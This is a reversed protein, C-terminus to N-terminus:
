AGAELMCRHAIVRGAAEMPFTERIAWGTGSGDILTDGRLPRVVPTDVWNFGGWRQGPWYALVREPVLAERQLMTAGDAAAIRKRQMVAPVAVDVAASTAYTGTVPDFAGTGARRLLYPAGTQRVMKLIGAEARDAIESM